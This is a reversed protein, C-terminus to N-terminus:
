AVPVANAHLAAALKGRDKCELKRLANSVHFKVTSVEVQLKDAIEADVLSTLGCVKLRIGDIMVQFVVRVRPVCFFM